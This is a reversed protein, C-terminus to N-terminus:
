SPTPMIKKKMDSYYISEAYQFWKHHHRYTGGGGALVSFIDILFNMWWDDGLTVNVVFESKGIVLVKPIKEVENESWCFSKSLNGLNWGVKM